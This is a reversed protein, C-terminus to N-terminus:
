DSILNDFIDGIWDAHIHGLLVCGMTFFTLLFFILNSCMLDEKGAFIHDEFNEQKKGAVIKHRELILSSCGSLIEWSVNGECCERENM